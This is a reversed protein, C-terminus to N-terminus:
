LNDLKKDIISQYQIRNDELQVIEHLRVLRFSKSELM